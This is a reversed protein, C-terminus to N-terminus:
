LSKNGIAPENEKLVAIRVRNTEIRRSSHGVFGDRRFLHAWRQFTCISQCYKAPVDFKESIRSYTWHHRYRYYYVGVVKSVSYKNNHVAVGIKGKKLM